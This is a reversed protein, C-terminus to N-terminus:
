RSARGLAAMIGGCKCGRLRAVEEINAVVSKALKKTTARGCM